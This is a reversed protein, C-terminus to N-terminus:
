DSYPEIAARDAYFALHGALAAMQEFPAEYSWACETIRADSGEDEGKRKGEGVFDFYSADGKFPCHTTKPNRALRDMKVDSRPVYVVPLDRGERLVLGRLTEAVVCDGVRVRVAAPEDDFALPHEPHRDYADSRTM